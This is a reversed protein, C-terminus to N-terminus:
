LLSRVITVLVLTLTPQAMLQIDYLDNIHYYFIRARPDSISILLMIISTRVMPTHIYIESQISNYKLTHIHTHKPTFVSSQVM